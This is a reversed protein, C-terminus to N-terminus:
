GNHGIREGHWNPSANWGVPYGNTGVQEFSANRIEVVGKAFLALPFAAGLLVAFLFVRKM